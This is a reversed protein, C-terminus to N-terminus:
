KKIFRYVRSKDDSIVRLFYIGPNFHSIDFVRLPVRSNDMFFLQQGTIDIISVSCAINMDAMEMYLLDNAPNPYINVENKVNEPVGLLSSCFRQWIEQVKTSTWAYNGIIINQVFGPSAENALVSPDDRFWIIYNGPAQPLYDKTQSDDYTDFETGNVYIKILGAEDRVLILQYFDVTTFFDDPGVTGNPWFDLTGHTPPNTLEIYIGHDDTHTFSLLRVWPPPSTFEDIQFNFAISYAKDIFGAPNNFQLGADDNFFYGQATGQQGCTSAPVPRQLFTGTEGSNNPIQILDNASSPQSHFDGSLQYTYTVQAFALFGSVLFTLLLFSTRRLRKNKM